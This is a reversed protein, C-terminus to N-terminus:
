KKCIIRIKNNEFDNVTIIVKGKSAEEVSLINVYYSQLHNKVTEFHDKLTLDLTIPTDSVVFNLKEQELVLYKTENEEERAPIDFVEHFFRFARAPKVVSITHTSIKKPKM